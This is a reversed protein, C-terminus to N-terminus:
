CLQRQPINQITPIQASGSMSPVLEKSFESLFFNPMRVSFPFTIFLRLQHPYTAFSILPIFYSYHVHLKTLVGMPRFAKWVSVGCLPKIVGGVNCFLGAPLHVQM